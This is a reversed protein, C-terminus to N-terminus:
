HQLICDHGDVDFFRHVNRVGEGGGGIVQIELHYATPVGEGGGIVQLNADKIAKLEIDHTHRWPRTHGGHSHFENYWM